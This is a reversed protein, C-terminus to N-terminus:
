PGTPRWLVVVSRVNTTAGLEAKTSVRVDLAAGLGAGSLPVSVSASAVLLGTANLKVTQQDSGQGLTVVVLDNTSAGTTDALAYVTVDVSSQGPVSARGMGILQLATPDSMAAGPCSWRTTTTGEQVFSALVVRRDRVVCIANRQARDVMETNVPGGTTTLLADDWPRFGSAKIATAATLDTDPPDPYALCHHPLLDGGSYQVRIMRTTSPIVTSHTVTAVHGSVTATGASYGAVWGVAPNSGTNTDVAVTLTGTFSPM